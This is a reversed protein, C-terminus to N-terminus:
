QEVGDLDDQEIKSLLPAYIDRYSLNLQNKLLEDVFERVMGCGGNKQAVWDAADLVLSHTDAPSIALGCKSM